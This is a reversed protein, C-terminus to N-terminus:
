RSGPNPASPLHEPVPQGADKLADDLASRVENIPVAGDIKRGNIFLAPTANVGLEDAEKMTAKVEDEKLAKVCAQLKPVDVKHKQGQLMTIKDIADLRAPPTKETDVEHKNAGDVGAEGDGAAADVVAEAMGVGGRDGFELGGADGEVAGVAVAGDADGELRLADPRM